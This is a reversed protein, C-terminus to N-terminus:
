HEDMHAHPVPADRDDLHQIPNPPDTPQPKDDPHFTAQVKDNSM